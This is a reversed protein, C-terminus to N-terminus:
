KSRGPADSKVVEALRHLEEAGVELFRERSAAKVRVSLEELRKALLRRREEDLARNEFVLRDIAEIESRYAEATLGTATGDSQIKRIDELTILPTPPKAKTKPDHEAVECACLLVALALAARRM